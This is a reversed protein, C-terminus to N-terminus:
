LFSHQWGTANLPHRRGSDDILISDRNTCFGIHYAMKAQIVREADIESVAFLLEFDEGDSLAGAPTAGDAPPIQNMLLEVGCGSERAIHLAESALGDSIDIMAHLNILHHFAIAERIRPTFTFHSGRALSNGLPGTVFLWDGPKAGSRLVPGSGTPEGTMAVNIVLPGTWTNTDGGIIPCDFEDAIAKMGRFLGEALTITSEGKPLAVSILASTPRGAMAAIDSLNVAMAKRGILEPNVENVRFDTGDMLMDTTLLQLGSPRSIVACDDGPGIIVRSTSDIQRRLWHIFDFETAM